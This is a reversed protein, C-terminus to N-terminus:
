DEFIFKVTGVPSLLLESKFMGFLETEDNCVCPANNGLVFTPCLTVPFRPLGASVRRDMILQVTKSSSAINNLIAEEYEVLRRLPSGARMENLHITDLHHGNERLSDETSM